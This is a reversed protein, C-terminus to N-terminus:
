TRLGAGDGERNGIVLGASGLKVGEGVGVLVSVDVMGGVAISDSDSNKCGGKSEGKSEGNTGVAVSAGGVAVLGGVAVGV